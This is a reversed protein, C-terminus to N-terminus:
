QGREAKKRRRMLDLPKFSAGNEFMDYANWFWINLQDPYPTAVSVAKTLTEAADQGAGEKEYDKGVLGITKELTGVTSALPSFRIGGFTQEGVAKDTAYQMVDRIGPFMGFINDVNSRALWKMWKKAEDDDSGDDKPLKGSLLQSLPVFLLAQAAIFGLLKPSVAKDSRGSQRLEAKWRNAYTSLFSYFMVFAKAMGRTRVAPAVDFKRPSGLANIILNDAYHVADKENGGNRRLEEEYAQEWAPIAILNETWALWSGSFEKVSETFGNGGLKEIRSAALTYDPNQFREGMFKSKQSIEARKAAALQWAVGAKGWYDFAGRFIVASVTDKWGFDRVAGPLLAFNAVNQLVPGVKGLLVSATTRVTLFNAASDLVQAFRNEPRGDQYGSAAGKVATVLEDYKEKGVAAVIEAKVAPRALLRQADRVPRRFAIDHAVESMHKTLISEQMRVAYKAGKARGKLHGTKTVGKWGPNNEQYLPTELDERLQSFEGGRSVDRPDAVLPFYGGRMKVAEGDKSVVDFPLAEVKEPAFGTVEKHHKSAEPWLADAADWANQVSHWDKATLHKSLVAMVTAKDWGKHIGVPATGPTAPIVTKTGDKAIKTKEPLGFLREQNSQNGLNRAIAILYVRPVSVGWEEVHINKGILEKIEAKSYEAWVKKIAPQVAENIKAERNYADYFIRWLYKLYPNTDENDGGLVKLTDRVSVLSAAYSRGIGAIQAVPGSPDIPVPPKRKTVNKRSAEIMEAEAADMTIKGGFLELKSEADAYHRINEVADRLNQLEEPTLEKADKTITESYLWEAISISSGDPDVAAEWDSLSQPYAQAAPDFGSVAFGFRNLLKAFQEWNEQNGLKDREVQRAKNLYRLNKEAQKKIKQSEIAMAHALMQQRKAAAAKEFDKAKLAVAVKVAANREATYWRRFSGAATVPMANLEERARRLVDEPNAANRVIAKEAEKAQLKAVKSEFIAAELALVELQKRSHVAEEAMARLEATDKLDPAMEADLMQKVAYDVSETKIVVNALHDASSFGAVDAFMELAAADDETLKGALFDQAVTKASKGFTDAMKDMAVYIPQAEVEKRVKPEREKRKEAIEEKHEESIEKMQAHVLSEFAEGRSKEKLSVLKNQIAPALDEVEVAGITAGVSEEALAIEHDASLLRDFVQRADDSLTVNFGAQRGLETLNRYISVLWQSMRRFAGRIYDNPAKGEFLYAEFGRAFKEHQETTLKEQDDAIKLWEKVKNWDAATDITDKGSRSLQFLYNLWVHASEHILTSKDASMLRIVAFDPTFVTAGQKKTETAQEFTDEKPPTWFGRTDEQMRKLTFADVPVLAKAKTDPYVVRAEFGLKKLKDYAILMRNVSPLAPNRKGDFPFQYDGMHNPKPKDEIVLDIKANPKDRLAAIYQDHAILDSGTTITLPQNTGHREILSRAAGYKLDIWNLMEAREFWHPKLFDKPNGIAGTPTAEFHPYWGLIGPRQKEGGFSLAKGSSGISVYPVNAKKAKADLADWQKESVLDGYRAKIRELIAQPRKDDYGYKFGNNGASPIPNGGMAERAQRESDVLGSAKAKEAIDQVVGDAGEHDAIAPDVLGLIFGTSTKRTQFFQEESQRVKEDDSLVPESAAFPTLDVLRGNGVDLKTPMEALVQDVSVGRKEAQTAVVTAWFRSTAAVNQAWEKPKMGDPVGSKSLNSAIKTEADARNAALKEPAASSEVAEEAADGLVKEQEKLQAVTKGQEDLTAHESLGAVHETGVVKLAWQKVPIKLLSGSDKAAQFQEPTIGVEALAAATDINRSQFYTEAGEPDVFVNEFRTNKTAAEVFGAATEKDRTFTKTKFISESADILAKQDAEAVAMEQQHGRMQRAGGIGFPIVLGQATPYAVKTADVAAAGVNKADLPKDAAVLGGVNTSFEQAVETSIETAGAKVMEKGVAKVAQGLTMKEFVKPNAAIRAILKDAGPIKSGLVQAAKTLAGGSMKGVPGLVFKGLVLEGATELTANVAGVVKSVKAAKVPDVGPTQVYEEFAGGREVEYANMWMGPVISAIATKAAPGAEVGAGASVGERVASVIDPSDEEFLSGFAAKAAAEFGEAAKFRAFSAAMNPVQQMFQYIPHAAGGKAIQADMERLPASEKKLAELEAANKPSLRGLRETDDARENALISQRTNSQGLALGTTAQKFWSELRPMADFLDDKAVAANDPNSAFEATVPAGAVLAGYDIDQDQEKKVDDYNREVHDPPLGAKRALQLVKAHQDPNKDVTQAVSQKLAQTEPRDPVLAGYDIEDAASENAPPPAKDAADPIVASYDIDDAM